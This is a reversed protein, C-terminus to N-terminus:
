PIRDGFCSVMDPDVREPKPTPLALMHLFRVGGKPAVAADRMTLFREVSPAIGGRPHFPVQLFLELCAAISM